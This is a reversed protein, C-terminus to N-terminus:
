RAAMAQLLVAASQESHVKTRSDSILNKKEEGFSHKNNTSKDRNYLSGIFEPLSM